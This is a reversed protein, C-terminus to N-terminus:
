NKVFLNLDKNMLKLREEYTRSLYHKIIPNNSNDQPISNWKVDLFKVKMLIEKNPFIKQKLHKQKFLRNLSNKIKLFNLLSIFEKRLNIKYLFASISQKFKNQIPINNYGLLSNVAANEWWNHYIFEEKSWVKELFERSWKTNKILWVGTNPIENGNINHKVLYIDKNKKLENLINEDFRVFLADADIWLVYDFGEELLKQILLIKNWASPRDSSIENYLKVEFNYKKAYEKISFLCIEGIPKFTKDFYTTICVKSKKM